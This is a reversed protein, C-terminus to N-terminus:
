VRMCAHLYMSCVTVDFWSVRHPLKTTLMFHEAYGGFVNVPYRLMSVCALPYRLMCAYMCVLM